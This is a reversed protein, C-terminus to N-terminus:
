TDIREAVRDIIFIHDHRQPCPHLLVAVFQDLLQHLKLILSVVDVKHAVLEPHAAVNNFDKRNIRAVRRHADFKESIFNVADGLDVGHGAFYLVDHRVSRDIRGRM